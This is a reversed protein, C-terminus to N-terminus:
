PTVELVDTQVLSASGRLDARAQLRRCTLGPRGAVANDLLVKKRDASQGLIRYDVGAIRLWAGTAGVEFLPDTALAQVWADAPDLLDATVTDLTGTGVKPLRTAPTTVVTDGDLILEGEAATAGGVFLTGAAACMEVNGNALLRRGATVKARALSWGSLDNVYLAIRGGGGPGGWDGGGKQYSGGAADLNGAGQLVQARVLITGGAGSGAYYGNSGPVGRARIDGDLQLTGVDLDVM